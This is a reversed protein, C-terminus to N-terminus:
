PEAVPDAPSLRPFAVRLREPDAYILCIRAAPEDVHRSAQQRRWSRVAEPIEELPVRSAMDSLAAETEPALPDPTWLLVPSGQLLAAAVPDGSRPFILGAADLLLARGGAGRVWRTQRESPPTDKLSRWRRRWRWHLRDREILEAPAVWVPHDWGLVHPVTEDATIFKEVPLTLLRFPLVFEIPASLHTFTGEQLEFQGVVHRVTQPLSEHGAEEVLRMRRTTGDPRVILATLHYHRGEEGWYTRDVAISLVPEQRPVPLPRIGLRTAVRKQWADLEARVDAPAAAARRAVFELLAPTRGPPDGREELDRLRGLAGESGTHALLEQLRNREGALLLSPTAFKDALAAFAEVESSGPDLARLVDVLVRLAEPRGMLQRVLQTVSTRVPVHEDVDLGTAAQLEQVLSPFLLPSRIVPLAMLAEVLDSFERLTPADHAPLAAGAPQPVLLPIRQLAASLPLFRGSKKDPADQLATFVGVVAGLEDVVPSGSSGPGPLGTGFDLLGWEDSRDLQPADKVVAPLIGKATILRVVHGTRARDSITRPLPLFDRPEVLRLVAVDGSAARRPLWSGPVVEATAEEAPEEGTALLAVQLPTRPGHDSHSDLGLAATVVHACTLIQHRSILFGSGVPRGERGKIQVLRPADRRAEM